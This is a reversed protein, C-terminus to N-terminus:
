RKGLSPLGGSVVRVSSSGDVPARHRENYVYCEYFTIFVKALERDDVASPNNRADKYLRDLRSRINVIRESGAKRKEDEQKKKYLLAAKKRKNIRSKAEPSEPCRTRIHREYRKEGVKQSCYQCVVTTTQEIM